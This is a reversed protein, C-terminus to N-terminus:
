EDTEDEVDFMAEPPKGEWAKRRDTTRGIVPQKDPKVVLDLVLPFKGEKGTGLVKEAVAPSVLAPETFLSDRVKAPLKVEGQAIKDQADEVWYRPPSYNVLHYGPVDEGRHLRRQAEERLSKRLKDVDESMKLLEGLRDPSLSTTEPFSGPGNEFEAENMEEFMSAGETMVKEALAPCAGRAPCWQCALDSPEYTAGEPAGYLARTLAPALMEDRWTLLDEVSESWRKIGGLRPQAIIYEISDIDITLNGEEDVFEGLMGLAYERIQPNEDVGVDIGEGYKLDGVVLTKYKKTPKVGLDASGRIIYVEGEHVGVLPIAAEVRSEIMISDAGREQAYSKVLDVYEGVYEAMDADYAETEHEPDITLELLTMEMESTDVRGLMHNAEVEAVAHATTGQRAATSSKAFERQQNPSLTELFKRSASLSMTCNMWREAGSPGAGAHGDFIYDRVGPIGIFLPPPAAAEVEARAAFMEEFLAEPDMVDPDDGVMAYEPDLMSEAIHAPLEDEFFSGAARAEAKAEDSLAEFEAALDIWAVGEDPVDPDDGEDDFMKKASPFVPDDLLPESDEAYGENEWEATVENAEALEEAEVEDDDECEGCLVSTDDADLETGCEGCHRLGDVEDALEEDPQPIQDSELREAVVMDILDPWSVGDWDSDAVYGHEKILEEVLAARSMGGPATPPAEPHTPNESM